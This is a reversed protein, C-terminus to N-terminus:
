ERGARRIMVAAALGVVLVGSSWTLGQRVSRRIAPEMVDAIRVPTAGSGLATRQRSVYAAAGDATVRDQVVCFVVLAAAFTFLALRTV